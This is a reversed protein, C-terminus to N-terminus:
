PPIQMSRALELRQGLILGLARFHHCPWPGENGFRGNGKVDRRHVGPFEEPEPAHTSRSGQPQPIMVVPVAEIRDMVDTVPLPRLLIRPHTTMRIFGLLTM